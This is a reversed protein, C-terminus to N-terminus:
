LVNMTRRSENDKSRIQCGKRLSLLIKSGDRGSTKVVDTDWKRVPGDLNSIVLRKLWLKSPCVEQLRNLPCPFVTDTDIEIEVSNGATLVAPVVRAFKTSNTKQVARHTKGISLTSEVIDTDDGFEDRLGLVFVDDGHKADRVFGLSSQHGWWDDL